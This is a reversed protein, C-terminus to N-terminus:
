TSSPTATKLQTLDDDNAMQEWFEVTIAPKGPRNPDITVRARATRDPRDRRSRGLPKPQAAMAGSQADTPGM